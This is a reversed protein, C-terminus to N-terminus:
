GQGDGLEGRDEKKVQMIVQLREQINETSLDNELREKDYTIGANVVTTRLLGSKENVSMGKVDADSISGIIADHLALNALQTHALVSARNAKYWKVLEGDGEMSKVIKRVMWRSCGMVDAVWADTNGADVLSKIVVKKEAPMAKRGM